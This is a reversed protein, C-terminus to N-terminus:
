YVYDLGNKDTTTLAQKTTWNPWMVATSHCTDENLVIWHGFEHLIVTKYDCKRAAKDMVGSNNWSFDTNYFSDCETVTTGSRKVDTIGPIDPYGVAKFSTKSWGNYVGSTNSNTLTWASPGNNWVTACATVYSKETTTLVASTFYKVSTSPWKYGTWVYASASVPVGLALVVGCLMTAVIRIRM